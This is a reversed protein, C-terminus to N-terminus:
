FVEMQTHIFHQTHAMTYPLDSWLVEYTKEQLASSYGHGVITGVPGDIEDRYRIRSNVPYM